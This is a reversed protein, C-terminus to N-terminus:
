GGIVIVKDGGYDPPQALLGAVFKRDEINLLWDSGAVRYLGDVVAYHKGAFRDNEDAKYYGGRASQPLAGCFDANLARVIAEPSGALPEPLVSKLPNKQLPTKAM